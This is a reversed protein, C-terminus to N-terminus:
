NIRFEDYFNYNNRVETTKVIKPKGAYGAWVPLPISLNQDIYFFQSCHFILKLETLILSATTKKALM